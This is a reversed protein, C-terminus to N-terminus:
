SQFFGIAAANVKDATEWQPWHSAGLIEFWEVGPILAKYEYAMKLFMDEHDVCAMVMTPRSISKLEDDTLENKEWYGNELGGFVNEMTQVMGPQQYLRLRLALLDQMRDAPDEILGAFVQDIAEYTPNEVAKMREGRGAKMMAITEPTPAERPRGWASMVILKEVMEPYRTTFKTGIWGGISLGFINVKTLDHAKLFAGLQAVYSEVDHIEDPKASYGHGKLDYAYTNFHKSFEAFNATFNEWSGGMGHIMVVVPADKPGANVYRTRIGGADIYGQTFALNDMYAWISRLDRKAESM